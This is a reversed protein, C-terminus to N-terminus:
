ENSHLKNLVTDKSTDLVRQNDVLGQDCWVSTCLQPRLVINVHEQYQAQYYLSRATAHRSREQPTPPGLDRSTAPRLGRSRYTSMTWKRQTELARGDDELTSAKRTQNANRPERPGIRRWRTRWVLTIPTSTMSADDVNTISTSALTLLHQPKWVDDDLHTVM